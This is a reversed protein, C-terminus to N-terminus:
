VLLNRWDSIYEAIQHKPLLQKYSYSDMNWLFDPALSSGLSEWGSRQNTPEDRSLPNSCFDPWFCPLYPEDLQLQPSSYLKYWGVESKHYAGGLLIHDQKVQKLVGFMKDLSLWAFFVLRNLEISMVLPRPKYLYWRIYMRYFRYYDM